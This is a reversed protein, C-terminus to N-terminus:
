ATSPSMSSASPIRALRRASFDEAFHLHLEYVGPPLPDCLQFEGAPRRTSPSISTRRLRTIREASVVEGCHFLSRWAVHQRDRGPILPGHLWRSSNTGSTRQPARVPGRTERGFGQFSHYMVAAATVALLSAAPWRGLSKEEGVSTSAPRGAPRASNRKEPSYASLAPSEM